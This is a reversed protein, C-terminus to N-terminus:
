PCNLLVKTSTIEQDSISKQSPFRMHVEELTLCAQDFQKLGGLSIALGFLAEPAFNGKPELSFAELYSNAANKWEGIKYQCEALRFFVEPLFSSSPFAEIFNKFEKEAEEYKGNKLFLKARELIKMESFNDEEKFMQKESTVRSDGGNSINKQRVDDLESFNGEPGLIVSLERSLNRINEMHIRMEYEMTEIKGELKEIVVQLKELEVLALSADGSVIYTNEPM